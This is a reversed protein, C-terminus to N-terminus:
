WSLSQWCCCYNSIVITKYRPQTVFVAVVGVGASVGAGVGAGVGNVIVVDM